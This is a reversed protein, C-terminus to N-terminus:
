GVREEFAPPPDQELNTVHEHGLMLVGRLTRFITGQLPKTFLDALMRWTPCHRIKVNESKARDKIWFYRIDIHRSKPGVSTRGNRELKIASENDQELVNHSIVFGQARLFMKTWITNPLYDSAGVVEAETSSKTNLKQKTSKCLVGGTGFSMVGGTHSRMDPHVAYSADVWTRLNGMDDAGIIYEMDMSGKIYELIRLLKAQDETTSKTVRTCLFGTPLLIDARARTAVYLLKCVVSHFREHEVKKLTPAHADVEFLDKKAPTAAPKKVDLGAETIAEQLYDKMTIVATGKETYRIHM